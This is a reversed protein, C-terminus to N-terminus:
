ADPNDYMLLDKIKTMMNATLRKLENYDPMTKGWYKQHELFPEGAKLIVGKGFNLMKAHKPYVNETGTIGVPYIPVKAEIAIRMAGTHGELLEGNGSNTTGEPYIIVWKNKELLSLTFNYSGVDHAGRELPFAHATRIWGNVVPVKFLSEKAQQYVVQGRQQFSTALIIVDWESNHNSCIVAGSEINKPFHKDYDIVRYPSMIDCMYSVLNGSFHYIAEQFHEKADFVDLCQLLSYWSDDWLWLFNKSIKKFISKMGKSKPKEGIDKPSGISLEAKKKDEEKVYNGEILDIIEQRLESTLNQIEKYSVSNIDYNDYHIPKGVRVTVNAPKMILKGKPLADRSGLVAIPVIPTGTEIALRVAGTRFEGVSGDKSRTGQPFIGIWQDKQIYKKAKQWARQIDLDNGREGLNFAGLNKFLTRVIPTKFNEEKSMWRIRRQMSGGIFFPDLHSTHNGVIVGGGYEPFLNGYVNEVKYNWLTRMTFKCYIYGIWWQLELEKESLHFQKVIWRWLDNLPDIPNYKLIKYVWSQHQKEYILDGKEDVQVGVYKPKLIDSANVDTKQTEM